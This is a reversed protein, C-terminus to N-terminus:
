PVRVTFGVDGFMLIDGEVISAPEALREGNLFTGNSSELDAVWAAGAEQWILAHIRSVTDGAVRVDADASRGVLSRIHSVPRVPAGPDLPDLLAWSEMEGPDFGTVISVDGSRLAPDVVVDVRAPGELRWGRDAAAEDIFGALEEAAATVAETDVPDGGMTIGYVNPATPGAATTVLALDAERVLMTGLEVPHVRGRFLRSALGDVLRELRRELGRAVGM